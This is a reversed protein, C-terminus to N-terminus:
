IFKFNEYKRECTMNIQCIMYIIWHFLIQHVASTIYLKCNLLSLFSRFFLWCKSSFITIYAPTFITYEMWCKKKKNIGSIEVQLLENSLQSQAQQRFFLVFCFLFIFSLFSHFFFCFNFNGCSSIIAVKHIEISSDLVCSYGTINQNNNYM